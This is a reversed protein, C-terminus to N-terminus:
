VLPVHKLAAAHFVLEPATEKLCRTIADTDRVDAIIALRNIDSHRMSTEMDIAYLNFESSDLLTLHSPGFDSVQRVLESGISGGAGTILVRKGAILAQMADRDLPNQPRGLLDEIAVPRVETVDSIGSKFETLRPLRALTMGCRGCDDLLTAITAGDMDENSLILRQPADGRKSLGAVVDSLQSTTGVVPIGHINRGVRGATESVIGVVRYGANPTRNLSRVFEEAADGAGALLVPIQNLGQEDVYRDFRRDKFLRYLFRPGGLMAMLVFWNILVLSRPLNELRTWLFMAVMFILIVLTVARTIAALDNISAYRWVGRYLGMYLFVGAAIVAFLVGGQVLTESRFYDAFGVGFRLYLSVYFSGVAMIIDHGYVYYGRPPIKVPM